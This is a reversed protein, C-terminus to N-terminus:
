DKYSILLECSVTLDISSTDTNKVVLSFAYEQGSTDVLDSVDILVTTGTSDYNVGEIGLAFGATTNSFRTTSATSGEDGYVEFKNLEGGASATRVGVLHFMLYASELSTGNPFYPTITANNMVTTDSTSVNETLTAEQVLYRKSGHRLNQVSNKVDQILGALM